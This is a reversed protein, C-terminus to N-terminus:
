VIGVRADLNNPELPAPNLAELKCLADIYMSTLTVKTQDFLQALIVFM